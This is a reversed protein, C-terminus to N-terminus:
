GDPARRFASWCRHLQGDERRQRLLDDVADLLSVQVADTRMSANFRSCSSFFCISSEIRFVENVSTEVSKHLRLIGLRRWAECRLEQAGRTVSKKGHSGFGGEFKALLDALQEIMPKSPVAIDARRRGM